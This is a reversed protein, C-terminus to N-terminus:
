CVTEKWLLRTEEEAIQTRAKGSADQMHHCEIVEIHIFSSFRWYVRNDVTVIGVFAFILLFVHSDPSDHM